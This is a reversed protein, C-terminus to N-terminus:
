CTIGLDHSEKLHFATIKVLTMNMNVYLESILSNRADCARELEGLISGCTWSLYYPMRQM